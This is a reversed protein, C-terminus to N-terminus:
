LFIQLRLNRSKLIHKLRQGQCAKGALDLTKRTLGPAM